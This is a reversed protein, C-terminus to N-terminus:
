SHGAGGRRKGSNFKLLSANLLNEGDKRELRIENKGDKM